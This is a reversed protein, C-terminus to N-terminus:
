LPSTPPINLLDSTQCPLEGHSKVIVKLINAFWHHSQVHSYCVCVCVVFLM